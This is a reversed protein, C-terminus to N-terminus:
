QLEHPAFSPWSSASVAARRNSTSSSAPAPPRRYFRTRAGAAPPLSGAACHLPLRRGTLCQPHIRLIPSGTQVDGMVLAVASEVRKLPAPVIRTVPRGPQPLCGAYGHIRSTDGAPLSTPMPSGEKRERLAYHQNYNREAGAAKSELSAATSEFCARSAPSSTLHSCEM